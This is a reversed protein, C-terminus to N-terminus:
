AGVMCASTPSPLRSTPPCVALWTMAAKVLPRAEPVVAELVVGLLRSADSDTKQPLERRGALRQHGSVQRERGDAPHRDGAVDKPTYRGDPIVSRWLPDFRWLSM